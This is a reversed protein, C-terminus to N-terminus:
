NGGKDNEDYKKPILGSVFAYGIEKFTEEESIMKTIIKPVYEGCYLYCNLITDMTM